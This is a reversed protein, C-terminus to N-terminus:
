GTPRNSWLNIGYVRTNSSGNLFRWGSGVRAPRNAKKEQCQSFIAINIQIRRFLLFTVHSGAWLAAATLNADVACKQFFENVLRNEQAQFAAMTVRKPM